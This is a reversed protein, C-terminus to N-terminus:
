EGGRELSERYVESIVSDLLPRDLHDIKCSDLFQNILHLTDTPIVENGSDDVVVDYDEVLEVHHAVSNIAELLVDLKKKNQCKSVTLRVIKKSYTSSDFQGIDLSDDYRVIEYIRNPNDVFEIEKTATDFIAFGKPYNFEGWNTQVPNGIYQIVGNTARIHFHGSFM